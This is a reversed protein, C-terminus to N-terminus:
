RDFPATELKKLTFFMGRCVKGLYRDCIKPKEPLQRQLELNLNRLTIAPNRGLTEAIFDRMEDDVSTTLEGRRGDEVEEPNERKMAKSVISRASSRNISLIDAVYLYDEGNRHARIVRLKDELSITKRRPM